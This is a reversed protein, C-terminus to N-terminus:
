YGSNRLRFEITNLLPQLARDWYDWAHNGPTEHYEYPLKRSSLQSAFGRNTDLFFDATGCALYFYPFAVQHPGGLLLFIDNETRTHSSDSGFVPLLNERFEPRLRDLDTPGNFAGSLSGAFVFLEPYKLGFKIAGYGGMSLGAIARAHGDHITRYKEDVDSILDKVIYDEFKDQPITASDTYWSDGADPMIILLNLGRGYNELNTRTDWNKYDGYIGHLLYLSPFRGGKEYASPLLVRYHMDRQLSASHFVEDKVILASPLDEAHKERATASGACLFLASFLCIHAVLKRGATLDLQTRHRM